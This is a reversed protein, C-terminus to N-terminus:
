RNSQRGGGRRFSKRGFSSRMEELQDRQEQTLEGFVKAKNKEVVVMLEIQIAHQAAAHTRFAGEDFVTPDDYQARYNERGTRLQEAYGDITPQAEDLIGQIADLQAESLDLKEAMRPLMHEIFRLGHGGEAGGVSEHNGGHPGRGGGWGAGSGNGDGSGPGGQAFGTTPAALVAIAAITLIINRVKM